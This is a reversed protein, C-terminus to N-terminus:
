RVKMLVSEAAHETNKGERRALVVIPHDQAEIWPEAYFTVTRRTENENVLIGNLGIDLVRVGHPMGRVELPVRGTFGKAREIHVTLKAQKGPQLMVEAVDTWTRIDGPTIVKPGPIVAESVVKKGNIVAEGVIRMPTKPRPEPANVKATLAVATAYTGAEITTAPAAIGPPLDAFRVHIPGDFGDIREATIALPVSAFNSVTPMAPAFRINFSPRPPRVTLRYGFTVGGMGRADSIRVKYEGDAPPDFLIRSDRGFGPGGDDNRYFLTFVPFGNPPFRTGPPHVRVKYMPLGNAHHTPTTDLYGIRQGQTAFFNCDADPHTPLAQIKMLENGVFLYDNISLDNWTEIRINGQASDHDRFTVNTKALSRLVARPVPDGAKDLIEIVSDLKSGIRRAHTEVVLPQGKKAAFTWTHADGDKVIIGNATGPVTVLKASDMADPFEGVVIEVNGLPEGFKSTVPINIKNGIKADKPVSVPVNQQDLFVGHIRVFNKTGRMLGLPHVTTVVPIEGRHLKYTYDAGGRFERDRVTISYTGAVSFKHGLHSEGEAIVKGTADTLILVPEFKSKPDVVLKFGLSEGAKADFTHVHVAGARDLTGTKLGWSSRLSEQPYSTYHPNSGLSESREDRPKAAPKKEDGFERAVKGTKIDILQVVGDYRGIIIQGADERLAMCMVTEPQKDYVKREIMKEVDWAKIVRDQGVSYLTKSDSSFLVKQVPGEHAFVSQRLRAGERFEGRGKPSPNPTLAEYVRISKDVGASVLRKGDPSWAVTYLWDTADSLTYLLKGTEVDFVKMARDASVSALMKGDPSFALGYVADSHEKLVLPKNFKMKDHDVDKLLHIEGDYSASALRRNIDSFFVLALVSDKHITIQPTAVDSCYRVDCQGNESRTAVLTSVSFNDSVLSTIPDKLSYADSAIVPQKPNVELGILVLSKGRAIALVRDLSSYSLATVPGLGGKKAKIEPLEVKVVLADDKAGAAVWARLMAVEAKTPQLKAKAPPMIPKQKHETLLVLKSENPKGAIVVAGTDSGAMMAKHSELDLSGKQTKANHCELCYKVLLPRVDKTYSPSQATAPFVFSLLFSASLIIRKM